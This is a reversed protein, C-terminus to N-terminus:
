LSSQLVDEVVRVEIIQQPQIIAPQPATAYTTAAGAALGALLGIGTFGGLVTLAAAGIGSNRLLHRESVERDGEIPDSEAALKVNRGQLTIAQAIFRSGRQGTEFRGVVQTGAPLIVNGAQDQVSQSLLLVEQWPADASLDLARDRPYQLSLVTGAPLVIGSQSPSAAIANTSSDPPAEVPIQQGFTISSTPPPAVAVSQPTPAPATQPSAPPLSPVRVTAPVPTPEAVQVPPLDTAPNPAIAPRSPSRLPLGTALGNLDAAQSSTTAARNNVASASPASPLSPVRVIPQNAPADFVAPPLDAAVTDPLSAEVAPQAEPQLTPQVTPPVVPISIGSVATTMDNQVPSQVSPTASMAPLPAASPLDPLDALQPPASTLSPPGSEPPRASPAIATEPLGAPPPVPIQAVDAPLPAANSRGTVLPRLAWRGDNLQKLEAQEPELVTGAALEMVIRTQGPQFEAVRIQRIAGSYTAQTEVNGLAVNPLDLVLRAPEALLFYRPTVGAPLTVELQEQASNFTWSSLTAAIAPRSLYPVTAIALSSVLGSWTGLDRVLHGQLRVWMFQRM